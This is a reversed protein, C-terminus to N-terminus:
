PRLQYASIIASIGGIIAIIGLAYPLSFSFLWLNALLVIGLVLSFLGLIATGWSKSGIGGIINGIGFFLGMLGLIIIVTDLVVATSWLPYQVVVIGAAIGILGVLLNWGWLRQDIFISMIRFVGAILWYVGVFIMLVLTAEGTNVLLMLGLLLLALGEILVLWWPIQERSITEMTETAM